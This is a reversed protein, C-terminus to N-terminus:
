KKIEKNKHISESELDKMMVEAPFSSLPLGM